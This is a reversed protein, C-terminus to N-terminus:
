CNELPISQYTQLEGFSSDLWLNAEIGRPRLVGTVLASIEFASIRVRLRRRDRSDFRSISNLRLRLEIRRKRELVGFKLSRRGARHPTASLNLRLSKDPQQGCSGVALRARKGM